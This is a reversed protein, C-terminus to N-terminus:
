DLSDKSFLLLNEIRDLTELLRAAYNQKKTSRKKDYPTDVSDITFGEDKKIDKVLILGSKLPFM